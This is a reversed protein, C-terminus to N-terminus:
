AQNFKCIIVVKVVLDKGLATGSTDGRSGSHTVAFLGQSLHRAVTPLVNTPVNCLVTM